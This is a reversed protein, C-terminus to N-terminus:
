VAMAMCLLEAICGSGHVVARSYLWQWACCSWYVAVAVCLLEVICGSDRM